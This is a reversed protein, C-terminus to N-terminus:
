STSNTYSSYNPHLTKQELLLSELSLEQTQWQSSLEEVEENEWKRSRM